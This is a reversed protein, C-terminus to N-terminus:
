SEYFLSVTKGRGYWNQASANWNGDANDVAGATDAFVDSAGINKGREKLNLLM